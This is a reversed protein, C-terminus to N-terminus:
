TGDGICFIIELHNEHNTFTALFLFLVRSVVSKVLERSVKYLCVASFVVKLRSDIHFIFTFYM